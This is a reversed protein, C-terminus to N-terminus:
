PNSTLSFDSADAYFSPSILIFRTRIRKNTKITRDDSVTGPVNAGALPASSNGHSGNGGIIRLHSNAPPFNSKTVQRHM